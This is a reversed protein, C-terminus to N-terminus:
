GSLTVPKMTSAARFNDLESAASVERDFDSATADAVDRKLSYSHGKDPSLPM